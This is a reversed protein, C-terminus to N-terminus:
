YDHWCDFGFCKIFKPRESMGGLDLTFSQPLGPQSM